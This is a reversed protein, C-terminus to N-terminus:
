ERSIMLSERGYVGPHIANKEHYEGSRSTPERHFDRRSEKRGLSSTERTMRRSPRKKETAKSNRNEESDKVQNKGVKLQYSNLHDGGIRTM